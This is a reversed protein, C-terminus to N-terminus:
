LIQFPHLIFFFSIKLMAKSAIMMAAQPPCAVGAESEGSGATGVWVTVWDVGAEVEAFVAVTLKEFSTIGM